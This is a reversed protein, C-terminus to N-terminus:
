VIELLKDCRSKLTAYLKERLAEGTLNAEKILGLRKELEIEGLYHIWSEFDGRAEHFEISRVDISRIKECLDTLSDSSVGLPLDIGAYFYFANEPPTKSLIKEAMKGDIRPLGIAEKGEETIVYGGGSMMVLGARRLGLLHMNASRAKLGMRESIEQMTIPNGTEWITKLIKERMENVNKM